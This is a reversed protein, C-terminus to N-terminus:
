RSTVCDPMIAPMQGQIYPARMRRDVLKSALATAAPRVPDYGSDVKMIGNWQTGIRFLLFSEGISTATDKLPFPGSVRM